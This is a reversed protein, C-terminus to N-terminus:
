ARIKQAAERLGGAMMFREAIEGLPEGTDAHIMKLLRHMEPSIKVPITTPKSAAVPKTNSKLQRANMSTDLPLIQM